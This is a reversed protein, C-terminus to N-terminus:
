GNVKEEIEKKYKILESKFRNVLDILEDFSEVKSENRVLYQSFLKSVVSNIQRMDETVYSILDEAMAFRIPSEPLIHHAHGSEFRASIIVDSCEKRKRLDFKRNIAEIETRLMSSLNAM